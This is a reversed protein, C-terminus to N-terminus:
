PHIIIILTANNNMTNLQMAACAASASAAIVLCASPIDADADASPFFTMLSSSPCTTSIYKSRSSVSARVQADVVM